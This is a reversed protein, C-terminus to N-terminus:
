DLPTEVRGVTFAVLAAFGFEGELVGLKVTLDAIVEVALLAAKAIAHEFIDVRNVFLFRYTPALFAISLNFLALLLKSFRHGGAVKFNNVFDERLHKGVLQVNIDFELSFCFLKMKSKLLLKVNTFIDLAHFMVSVVLRNSLADLCESILLFICPFESDDKLGVTYVLDILANGSQGRLAVQPVLHVVCFNGRAGLRRHFVQFLQHM